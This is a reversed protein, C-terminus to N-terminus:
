LTTYYIWPIKYDMDGIFVLINQNSLITTRWASYQAPSNTHVAPLPRSGLSAALIRGVTAATGQPVQRPCVTHLHMAVDAAEHLYVHM